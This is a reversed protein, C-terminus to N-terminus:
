SATKEPGLQIAVRGFGPVREYDRGKGEETKREENGIPKRDIQVGFHQDVEVDM